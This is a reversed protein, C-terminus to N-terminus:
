RYRLRAEGQRQLHGGARFSQEPRRGFLDGGRGRHLSQHLQLQEGQVAYTGPPPDLLYWLDVWLSTNGSTTTVRGSATCPCAMMPSPFGMGPEM